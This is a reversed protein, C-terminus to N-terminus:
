LAERGSNELNSCSEQRSTSAKRFHFLRGLVRRIPVLWSQRALYRGGPFVVTICAAACTRASITEPSTARAWAIDGLAQSRPMRERLVKRLKENAMKARLLGRYPERDIYGLAKNWVADIAHEMAQSNQTKQGSRLRKFGMPSGACYGFRCGAWAARLFYDADEVYLSEDWKGVKELARRRFLVGLTDLWVGDPATLRELMDKVPPTSLDSWDAKKATTQFARIDGYVIDLKPNARFVNVQKETKNPALVDDGDMFQIFEGHAIELGTNYAGPGDLNPQRIYQLRSGFKRPVEQPTADASSNDVVIVELAGYSQNLASEIAMELDPWNNYACIVVTVLGSTIGTREIMAEESLISM